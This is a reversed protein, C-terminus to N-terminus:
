YNKTNLLYKELDKKNSFNIPLDRHSMKLYFFDNYNIIVPINTFDSNISEFADTNKEDGSIYNKSTFLDPLIRLNKIDLDRKESFYYIEM